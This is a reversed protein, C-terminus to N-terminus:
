VFNQVTKINRCSTIYNKSWFDIRYFKKVHKGIGLTLVSHKYYAFYCIEKICNGLDLAFILNIHAM